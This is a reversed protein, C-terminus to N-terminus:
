YIQAPSSTVNWNFTTMYGATTVFTVNNRAASVVNGLV